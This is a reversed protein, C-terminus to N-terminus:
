KAEEGGIAWVAKGIPELDEFKPRIYAVSRGQCMHCYGQAGWDKPETVVFFAGGFVDPQYDPHLQLVEGIQLPRPKM